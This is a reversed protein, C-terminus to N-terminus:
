AGPHEPQQADPFCNPLAQHVGFQAHALLTVKGCLLTCFYEPRCQKNVAPWPLHNKEEEEARILGYTFGQIWNQIRCYLAFMSSGSPTWCLAMFIIFPSFPADWRHPFASLDPINLRSFLLRLLTEDINVFVQLSLAIFISAPQKWHQGTVPYSATHVFQLVPPAGPVAPLAKKSHTHSFVSNSDWFLEPTERRPSMGPSDPCPGLYGARPTQAQAPLQILHGASTGELRLWQTTWTSPRTGSGHFTVLLHGFRM